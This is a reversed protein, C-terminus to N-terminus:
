AENCQKQFFKEADIGQLESSNDESRFAGLNSAVLAIDRNVIEIDNVFINNNENSEISISGEEMPDGSYSIVSYGGGAQRGEYETYGLHIYNVGNKEAAAVPGTFEHLIGYADMNLSRWTGDEPDFIHIVDETYARHNTVWIYGSSDRCVGSSFTWFNSVDEGFRTLPSEIFGERKQTSDMMYSWRDEGPTYIKIGHSYATFWVDGLEPFYEITNPSNVNSHRGTGFGTTNEHNFVEWTGNDHRGIGDMIAETIYFLEGSGTKMFDEVRSQIPGQPLDFDRRSWDLLSVVSAGGSETGILVEDREKLIKLSTIGGAEPFQMMVDGNKMVSPTGQNTFSYTEGEYAVTHWPSYFLGTDTRCVSKFESTDMVSWVGPDYFNTGEDRAATAIGQESVMYVLSDIFSLSNIEPSQLTSFDNINYKVHGEDISFISMSNRYLIFLKMGDIEIGTIKNDEETYSDYVEFGMDPLDIHILHNSETAVWLDGEEDQAAASVSLEAPIGSVQFYRNILDMNSSYEILGGTSAAYFRDKAFFVGQVNECGRYHKVEIDAYVVSSCIILFAAIMNLTNM